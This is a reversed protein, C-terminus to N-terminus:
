ICCIGLIKIASKASDALKRFLIEFILHLDDVHVVMNEDSM